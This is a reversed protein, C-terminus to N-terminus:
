SKEFLLVSAAAALELIKPEAGIPLIQCLMDLKSFKEFRNEMNSFFDWFKFIKKGSRSRKEYFRWSGALDKFFTM